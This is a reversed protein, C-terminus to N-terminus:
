FKLTTKLNHQLQAMKKTMIKEISKGGERSKQTQFKLYLSISLGVVLNGM